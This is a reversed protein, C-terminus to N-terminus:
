FQKKKKLNKKDEVESTEILGKNEKQAAPTLMLPAPPTPRSLLSPGYVFPKTALPSVESPLMRSAGRLTPALFGAGYNRLGAMGASSLIGTAVASPGGTATGIAGGAAVDYLGIPLKSQERALASRGVWAVDSANQYTKNLDKLTNIQESLASFNKNAGAVESIANLRNDIIGKIKNRVDSLAKQGGAMDRLPKDYNILEDVSQRYKYLDEIDAKQGLEQLGELVGEVKGIIAKKNATGKLNKSMEDLISKSIMAPNLETDRLRQVQKENLQSLFEPSNIADQANKYVAKIKPGTDDLITQAKALSSEVTAGPSVIKNDLAFQAVEDARNRGFLKRLEKTKAGLGGLASGVAGKELSRAMSKAGAELGRAAVNGVGELSANILGEKVPGAYVDERSVNEGEASKWLNQAAKGLYGGIGAGVMASGPAGLGLTPLGGVLGGIAGGAAGGLTPLNEKTSQLIGKMSVDFMSGSDKPQTSVEFPKSPDFKPKNVSDSPSDAVEFPKNPDFKPKNM